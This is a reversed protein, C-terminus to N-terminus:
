GLKARLVRRSWLGCLIAFASLGLFCHWPMLTGFWTQALPATLSWDDSLFGLRLPEIALTVPNLVVVGRLWAPLGDLPAFASSLFV